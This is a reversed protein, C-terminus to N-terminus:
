QRGVPVRATSTLLPSLLVEGGGDTDIVYPRNTPPVLCSLHVGLRREM